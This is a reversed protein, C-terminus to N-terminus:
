QEREGRFLPSQHLYRELTYDECNVQLCEHAGDSEECKKQSRSTASDALAPMPNLAHM